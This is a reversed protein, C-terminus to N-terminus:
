ESIRIPIVDRDARETSGLLENLGVGSRPAASNVHQPRVVAVNNHDTNHGTTTAINFTPTPNRSRRRQEAQHLSRSPVKWRNFHGSAAEGSTLLPDIAGM